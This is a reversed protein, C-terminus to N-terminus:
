QIPPNIAMALVLLMVLLGLAGPWAWPQYRRVVAPPYLREDVVFRPALLVGIAAGGMLGGIHATNDIVPSSFGIFLNIMIVTILSGLQQRSVEGLLGRSVYYFAALGGILGFIAGSAGVSPSPNLAYSTVGGALGAFFYLALFRATGYIREAEPGLAYLAYANFGLHVWGGHLFMATLFRYYEGDVAIRENDKAGLARIVIDPPFGAIRVGLLSLLEPVVFVIVNIALLAWVARPRGLPLSLRYSQQQPIPRAEGYVPAPEDERRPGFEKEFGRLVPQLDDNQNDNPQSM